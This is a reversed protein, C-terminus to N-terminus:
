NRTYISVTTTSTEGTVRSLEVNAGAKIFTLGLANEGLGSGSGPAEIAGLCEFSNTSEHYRAVNCEYNNIWYSGGGEDKRVVKFSCSSNVMNILNAESIETSVNLKKSGDAGKGSFVLSWQASDCNVVNRNFQRMQGKLLGPSAYLVAAVGLVIVLVGLLVKTTKTM